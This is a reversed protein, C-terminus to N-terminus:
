LASKNSKFTLTANYVICTIFLVMEIYQETAKMQITVCANYVICTISLVMEIYQETAKM